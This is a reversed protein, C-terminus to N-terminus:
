GLFGCNGGAGASGPVSGPAHRHASGGPQLNSPKVGHERGVEIRFREMGWESRKAFPRPKQGRKKERFSPAPPKRDPRLLFERDGLPLQDLAAIELVPVNHEEQCQEVLGQM